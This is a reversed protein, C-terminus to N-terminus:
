YPRGKSGTFRRQRPNPGITLEVIKGATNEFYQYVNDASTVNNGNVALLYDGERANVGPETLPSKLDPNWNLGGYIKKFRYRGNAVSYDVGLLGGKVPQTTYFQDGGALIFHHGVILESGMWQLIRNLDNRCSLDPLFVAYKTKIGAWNVGHMGPDYFYDRNIRWAEDFIEAWEPQPDIKVQIDALNLM